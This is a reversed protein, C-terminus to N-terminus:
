PRITTPGEEMVQEVLAGHDQKLARQRLRGLLVGGESVVLCVNWGAAETRAHVDGVREDLRCTPVGKRAIDGARPRDAAKGETPWGMAAWDMKGAVYDYVQTFGLSDLRAAARPSM